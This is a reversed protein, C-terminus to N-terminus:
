NKILSNLSFLKISISIYIIIKIYFMISIYDMQVVVMIVGALFMAGWFYVYLKNIGMKTFAFYTHIVFFFPTIVRQVFVTLNANVFVRLAESETVNNSIYNLEKMNSLWSMFSDYDKVIIFMELSLVVFLALVLSLLMNFERKPLNVVRFM